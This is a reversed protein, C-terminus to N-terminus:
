VVKAPQGLLVCHRCVAVCAAAKQLHAPTAIRVAALQRSAVAQRWLGVLLSMGLDAFMTHTCCTPQGQALQFQAHMRVCVGFSLQHGRWRAAHWAEEFANFAM